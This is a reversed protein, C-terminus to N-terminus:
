TADDPAPAPGAFWRWLRGAGAAVVVLWVVTPVGTSAGLVAALELWPADAIRDPRPVGLRALWVSLDPQAFRGPGGRLEDRAGALAVAAAAAGLGLVALYEAAGEGGAVGDAVLTARTSGIALAAHVLSRVAGVRVQESDGRLLHAPEAWTSLHVVLLALLVAVLLTGPFAALVAIFPVAAFVGVEVRGLPVPLECLWRLTPRGVRQSWTGTTPGFGLRGQLVVAEARDLDEADVLRAAAGGPAQVQGDWAEGMPMSSPCRELAASVWGAPRGVDDYVSAGGSARAAQAWAALHDPSAVTSDFLVLAPRGIRDGTAITALPPGAVGTPRSELETAGSNSVVAEFGAQGAWMAIWRWAPRGLVPAAPDRRAEPDPVLVLWPGPGADASM